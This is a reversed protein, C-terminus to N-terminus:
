ELWLVQCEELDIMVLIKWDGRSWSESSGLIHELSYYHSVAQVDEANCPIKIRQSRAWKTDKAVICEVGKKYLGWIDRIVRNLSEVSWMYKGSALAVMIGFPVMWKYNSYM